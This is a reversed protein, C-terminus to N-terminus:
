ILICIISLLLLMLIITFAFCLIILVYRKKNQKQMEIFHKEIEYVYDAEFIADKDEIYHDPNKYEKLLKIATDIPSPLKTRKLFVFSIMLLLTLLCVISFSIIFLVNALMDSECKENNFVFLSILGAIILGILVLLFNAISKIQNDQNIEQEFEKESFKYSAILINAAAENGNSKEGYTTRITQILNDLTERKRKYNDAKKCM